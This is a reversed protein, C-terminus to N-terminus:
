LPPPVQFMLYPEDTGNPFASGLFSLVRMTPTQAEAEVLAGCPQSGCLPRVTKAVINEADAQPTTAQYRWTFAATTAPPLEPEEEAEAPGIGDLFPDPAPAAPEPEPAGFRHLEFKVANGRAFLKIHMNGGEAINPAKFACDVYPGERCATYMEEWIDGLEDWSRLHTAPPEHFDQSEERIDWNTLDLYGIETGTGQRVMFSVESVRNQELTSLILMTTRWPTSGLVRLTAVRRAPGGELASRLETVTAPSGGVSSEPVKGNDLELITRGDVRLNSPAVEVAVADSPASADYRYSIPLELVGVIPDTSEQNEEADDGCGAMVLSALLLVPLFARSARIM